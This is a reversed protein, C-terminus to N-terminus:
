LWRENFTVTAAGTGTMTLTHEGPELVLWDAAPVLLATNGNVKLTRAECDAIVPASTVGSPITAFIYSGDELRVRWGGIGSNNKAASASITPMTPYTGGVTFTVSGGSPVTVTREQGYAVPDPCEFTVEFQTANAWRTADDSSQPIAMYYLGDDISIQLPKPEDVALIAALARAAAQRATISKSVATLRLTITRQAHTVGAFLSGNRGPVDLTEINRPLLSTRLDSVYYNQTLVHGNFTVVTRSM